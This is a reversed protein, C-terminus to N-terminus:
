CEKKKGVCKLEQRSFDGLTRTQKQRMEKMTQNEALWIMKRVEDEWTEGPGRSMNKKAM